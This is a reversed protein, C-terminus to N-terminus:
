HIGAVAWLPARRDEIARARQCLIQFLFLCHLYGTVAIVYVERQNSHIFLLVDIPGRMGKLVPLAYGNGMMGDEGGLRSLQWTSVLQSLLSFVM